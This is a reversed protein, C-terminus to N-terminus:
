EEGGETFKCISPYYKIGFYCGCGARSKAIILKADQCYKEEPLLGMHLFLVKDARDPIIMTKKFDRISPEENKAAPLDVTIVIPIHLDEALHKLECLLYMLRTSCTKDDAEEAEKIYEFGDIFLIQIHKEKSLWLVTNKLDNFCVNPENYIYFKSDFLESGADQIKKVDEPKLMGSRIKALPVESNLALLRIGMETNDAIGPNILGVSLKEEQIMKSILSLLFSTKGIYPRAGLVILDDKEFELWSIGTKITDQNRGDKNKYLDDVEEIAKFIIDKVSYVQCFGHVDWGEWDEIEQDMIMEAMNVESDLIFM